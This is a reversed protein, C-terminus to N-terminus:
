NKVIERMSMKEIDSRSNKLKLFISLNQAEISKDKFIDRGARTM